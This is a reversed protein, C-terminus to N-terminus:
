SEEEGADFGASALALEPLEEAFEFTQPAARESIRRAARNRRLRERCDAIRRRMEGGQYLEFASVHAQTRQTRM